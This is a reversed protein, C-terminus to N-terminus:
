SRPLNRPLGFGTQGLMVSHNPFHSPRCFPSWSCYLDCCIMYNIGLPWISDSHHPGADTDHHANGATRAKAKCKHHEPMKNTDHNTCNRTVHLAGEQIIVAIADTLKKDLISTQVTLRLVRSDLIANEQQRM